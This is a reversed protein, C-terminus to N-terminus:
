CEGRWTASVAANLFSSANMKYVGPGPHADLCVSFGTPGSSYGFQVRGAGPGTLGNNFVSGYFTLQPTAWDGATVVRLTGSQNLGSYVCFSGKPCDQPDPDGTAPDNGTRPQRQRFAAGPQGSCEAVRVATGPRHSSGTVELCVPPTVGLPQLWVHTARDVLVFSTAAQGTCDAQRVPAGVSGTPAAMCRGSNVNVVDVAGGGAASERLTWLAGAQGTCDAQGIPAGPLLSSDKVELCRGSHVAVIDIERTQAAGAARASPAPTLILLSLLSCLAVVLAVAGGPRRHVLAPM